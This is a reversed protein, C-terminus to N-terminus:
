GDKLLWKLADEKNHFVEYQAPVGEDEAYITYMRSLGFDIESVSVFATRGCVRDEPLYRRVTFAVERFQMSTIGSMDARTLDWLVHKKVSSPYFEKIAAVIEAASLLGEVTFVALDNSFQTRVVAMFQERRLVM